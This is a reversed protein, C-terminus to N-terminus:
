LPPFLSAICTFLLSTLVKDNQQTEKEEERAWEKREKRSV